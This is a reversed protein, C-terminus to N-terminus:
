ESDISEGISNVVWQITVRDYSPHIRRPSFSFENSKIKSLELLLTASNGGGNFSLEIRSPFASGEYLVFDSYICSFSGDTGHEGECRVLHGTKKEIYFRYDTMSPVKVIAYRGADEIEAGRFTKDLPAGDAAFLANSLLSEIVKYDTGSNHFFPIENYPTAAYIKEIKYIFHVDAPLFEFCAAEMLGMATASVQIGEDRKIRLKGKAKSKEGNVTIKMRVNASLSAVDRNMSPLVSLQEPTVDHLTVTPVADKIASCAALSLLLLLLLLQKSANRRIM